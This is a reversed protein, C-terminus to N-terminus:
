EEGEVLVWQWTSTDLYYSEGDNPMPPIFVDRQADYEGGITAFNVRFSGNYSTQVWRGGFTEECFTKGLSEQEVGDDDLLVANNVVIVQLIRNTTDDLQAFHAM